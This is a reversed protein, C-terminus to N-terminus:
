LVEAEQIKTNVNYVNNKIVGLLADIKKEPAKAIRDLNHAYILTTNINSHRALSQAEQITAGGILSLTVATHRLSHATIKKDDIGSAILRDKVIRSISRTTLRRGYDRNSHSIFLPSNDGKGEGRMAIYAKIPKLTEDTLVVIEDKSDRGKGQIKLVPQGSQQRIDGINARAVEITRLGTRILLNVIAYDRAGQLTENEIDSLLKQAQELSLADMNFGKPKKQGKIDHAINPYIREEETWKFFKRLSIIYSSVTYASLEWGTPKYKGTQLDDKYTLIDEHTPQTIGRRSLYEFFQKLARRYTEKSKPKVDQGRLFRDILESYDLTAILSKNETEIKELRNEEHRM